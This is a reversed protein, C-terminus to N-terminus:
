VTHLLQDIHELRDITEDLHFHLEPIIRLQHRELTGLEGRLRPTDLEIQEMVAATQTQPYISLYIHAISLDPSIRVESVSLLLSHFRSYLSKAYRLLIDSMDKQILREIKQQRTSQM